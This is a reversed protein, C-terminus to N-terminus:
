RRNSKGDSWNSLCPTSAGGNTQIGVIPGTFEGQWYRTTWGGRASGGRADQRAREQYLEQMHELRDNRRDYNEECAQKAAMVSLERRGDLLLPLRV